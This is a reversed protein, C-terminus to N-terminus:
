GPRPPTKKILKWVARLDSKQQIMPDFKHKSKSPNGGFSDKAWQGRKRQHSRVEKPTANPDLFTHLSAGNTWMALDQLDHDPAQLDPRLKSHYHPHRRYRDTSEALIKADSQIAWIVADLLWECSGYVAWGSHQIEITGIVIASQEQAFNALFKIQDALNGNREQPGSSVRGFLLVRDGPYIGQHTIVQSADGKEYRVRRNARRPTNSPTKNPKM